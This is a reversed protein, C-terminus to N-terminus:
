WVRGFGMWISDVGENGAGLNANSIHLYGSRLLWPSTEGIRWELALGLRFNHWSEGPFEISQVQWGAMGLLDARLSRWEVLRRNLTLDLGAMVGTRSYKGSDAIGALVEWGLSWSSEGLRSRVGYPAQYVADEDSDGLSVSGLALREDPARLPEMFPDLIGAPLPMAALALLCCAHRFAKSVM